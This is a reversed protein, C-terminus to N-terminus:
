PVLDEPPAAEVAPAKPLPPEWRTWDQQLWEQHRAGLARRVQECAEPMRGKLMLLQGLLLQERPTSAQSRRSLEQDTPAPVRDLAGKLEPQALAARKYATFAPGPQGLQEHLRGLAWNLEPVDPMYQAYTRFSELALRAKGAKWYAVGGWWPAEIPRAATAQEFCDVARGYDGQTLAQRGLRLWKAGGPKLKIQFEGTAPVSQQHTEWDEGASVRLWHNGESLGSIEASGQGKLQRDIFILASAPTAQVKLLPEAWALSSTTIAILFLPALTRKM